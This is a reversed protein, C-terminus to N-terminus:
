DRRHSRWYVFTNIQYYGKEGIVPQTSVRYVKLAKDTSRWDRFAAEFQEAAVFGLASGEAEPVMIQLICFGTREFHAAQDRGVVEAEGPRVSFRCWVQTADPTQNGENDYFITIGSQGLTEHLRTRLTQIDDQLM